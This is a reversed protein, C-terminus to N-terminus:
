SGKESQLEDVKARATTILDDAKRRFTRGVTKRLERGPKPALLLAVAAGALAGIGIWSLSRFLASLISKEELGLLGLIQEKDLNRIDKVNM